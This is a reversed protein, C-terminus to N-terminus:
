AVADTSTMDQLRGRGHGAALQTGRAAFTSGSSAANHLIVYRVYDGLCRVRACAYPCDVRRSAHPITRYLNAYANSRSMRRQNM